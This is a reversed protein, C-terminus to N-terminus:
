FCGIMSFGNDACIRFWKALNRTVKINNKEDDEYMFGCFQNPNEQIEKARKELQDAMIKIRNNDIWPTKINMGTVSEIYDRYCKGRFGAEDNCEILNIDVNFYNDSVKIWESGDDLTWMQEDEEQEEQAEIKIIKIHVIQVVAYNNLGM